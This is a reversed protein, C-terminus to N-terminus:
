PRFFRGLVCNASSVNSIAFLHLCFSTHFPMLGHFFCCMGDRRADCTTVWRLSFAVRSWVSVLCVMVKSAQTNVDMHGREDIDVVASAGLMLVLALSREKLPNQVLSVVTNRVRATVSIKTRTQEPPKVNAPNTPKKPDRAVIQKVAQLEFLLRSTMISSRTPDNLFMSWKRRSM